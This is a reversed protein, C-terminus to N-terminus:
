PAHCAHVHMFHMYMCSICARREFHDRTEYVLFHCSGVWRNQHRHRCCLFHEPGVPHARREREVSLEEDPAFRCHEYEDAISINKDVHFVTM